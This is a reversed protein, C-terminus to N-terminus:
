FMDNYFSRGPKGPTNFLSAEADTARPKSKGPGAARTFAPRRTM